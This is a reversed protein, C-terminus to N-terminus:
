HSHGRRKNQWPSSTHPSVNVGRRCVKDQILIHPLTPPQSSFWLSIDSPHLSLLHNKIVPLCLHPGAANDRAGEAHRPAVAKSDLCTASSCGHTRVHLELILRYIIWMVNLTFGIGPFLNLASIRCFASQTHSPPLWGPLM